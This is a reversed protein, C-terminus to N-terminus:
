AKVQTLSIVPVEVRSVGPIDIQKSPPLNANSEWIEKIAGDAVRRQVLDKRKTKFIWGWYADWDTVQVVTKSKILIQWLMGTKGRGDGKSVNEILHNSLTTEREQVSKVVKEQALRDQRYQGYADAIAELSTFTEKSADPYTVTIKPM